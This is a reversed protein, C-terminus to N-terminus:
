LNDPQQPYSSFSPFVLCVELMAKVLSAAPMFVISTQSGSQVKTAVAAFRVQLEVSERYDCGV